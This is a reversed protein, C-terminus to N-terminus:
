SKETQNVAGAPWGDLGKQEHKRGDTAIYVARSLICDRGVRAGERVQAQSKKLRERLIAV